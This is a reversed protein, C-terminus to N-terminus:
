PAPEVDMSQDVAYNTCSPTTAASCRATVRFSEGSTEVGYTYGDRGPKAMTMAGSSVLEDLSSAYSNHEVQYNREAQAIALLDNKVGVVNITQAPTGTSGAPQIGSFYYKYITMSILAVVLLGVLSGISRM